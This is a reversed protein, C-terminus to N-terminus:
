GRSGEERRQGFRGYHGLLKRLFSPPPPHALLPLHSTSSNLLSPPHTRTHSPTRSPFYYAPPHFPPDEIRSKPFFHPPFQLHFLLYESYLIRQSSERLASRSYIRRLTWSSSPSPLFGVKRQSFFVFKSTSLNLISSSSPRSLVFFMKHSTVIKRPRSSVVSSFSSRFEELGILGNKM